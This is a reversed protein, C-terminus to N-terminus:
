VKGNSLYNLYENESNKSQDAIFELPHHPVKKNISLLDTDAMEILAMNMTTRDVMPRLDKDDLSRLFETM